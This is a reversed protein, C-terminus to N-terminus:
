LTTGRPPDHPTALRGRLYTRKVRGWLTKGAYPTIGHRHYLESGLVTWTEDPDWLCLDAELGPAIRGKRDQLGVLRAPQTSLLGAMRALSIGHERAATWLAPLTLQLGAIGGWAMRLNRDDLRKMEPLCPSHDSGVTDILPGLPGTAPQAVASVLERRNSESRIPPACKYRPDGDPIREAAFFLYHPCTEVTLPLGLRKAAAIQPLATATSLHVIHIASDFEECLRILLDIAATEFRDPRSALYEPYSRDDAVAPTDADVREAHVLLPVQHRKLIPLAARLDSETVAPFDDLGSACLFAKVGRVGAELLPGIEALNGPILGAYFGVDCACQGAAAARKAALAALTTTVPRSNLPMDILTTVGGAIAAKTASAFGEWATRGPENIHVHADIIGPSIVLDGLEECSMGDLDCPTGPPDDPWVGRIKEGDIVITAAIEGDPTIVRNSHLAFRTM